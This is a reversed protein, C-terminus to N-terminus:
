FGYANRVENFSTASLKGKIEVGVYGNDGDNQITCSTFGIKKVSVLPINGTGVLGSYSGYACAIVSPYFGSFEYVRSDLDLDFGTYTFPIEITGDRSISKVYHLEIYRNSWIRFGSHAHVLITPDDVLGPPLGEQAGGWVFLEKVSGDNGSINTAHLNTCYIDRFKKSNSGIQTNSGSVPMLAQVEVADDRGTTSLNLSKAYFDDRYTYSSSDNSEITLVGSNFIFASVTRTVGKYTVYCGSAAIYREGESFKTLAGSISSSKLM